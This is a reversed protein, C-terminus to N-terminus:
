SAAQLGTAACEFIRTTTCVGPHCRRHLEQLIYRVEQVISNCLTEWAHEAVPAKVRAKWAHESARRRKHADSSPKAPGDASGAGGSAQSVREQHWKSIRDETKSILWHVGLVTGLAVPLNLVMSASTVAGLSGPDLGAVVKSASRSTCQGYCLESTLGLALLGALFCLKAVQELCGQVLKLEPSSTSAPASPRQPM